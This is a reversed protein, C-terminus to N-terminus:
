ASQRCLKEKIADMLGARGGVPESSRSDDLGDTPRCSHQNHTASIGNSQMVRTVATSDSTTSSTNM